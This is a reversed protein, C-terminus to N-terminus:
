ENEIVTRKLFVDFMIIVGIGLSFMFLLVWPEGLQNSVVLYIGLLGLCLNLVGTFNYLFNTPDKIFGIIRITSVLFGISLGFFLTYYILLVLGLEEPAEGETPQSIILMM